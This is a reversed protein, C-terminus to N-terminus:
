PRTWRARIAFSSSSYLGAASPSAKPIWLLVGAPTAEVGCEAPLPLETGTALNLLKERGMYRYRVICPQLFALVDGRVEAARRWTWTQTDLLGLVTTGAASPEKTVAFASDPVFLADQVRPGVQRFGAKSDAPNLTAVGIGGEAVTMAALTTGAAQLRDSVQGSATTFGKMRGVLTYGGPTAPDVAVVAELWTRNQLDVWRPMLYLTKEIVAWGSLASPKASRAGSQIQSQISAIEDASFLKPTTALPALDMVTAKGKSEHRFEGQRFTYNGGAFGLAWGDGTAPSPRGEVKVSFSGEPSDVIFTDNALTIKRTASQALAVGALLTALTM